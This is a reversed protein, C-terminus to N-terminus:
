NSMELSVLIDGFDNEIVDYLKSIASKFEPVLSPDAKKLASEKRAMEEATKYLFAQQKGIVQMAFDIEKSENVMSASEAIATFSPEKGTPLEFRYLGDTPDNESNVVGGLRKVEDRQDKTLQKDSAWKVKSAENLFDKFQKM